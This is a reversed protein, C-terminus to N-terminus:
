LKQNVRRDLQPLEEFICDFSITKAVSPVWVRAATGVATLYHNGSQIRSLM